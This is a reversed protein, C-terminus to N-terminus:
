SLQCTERYIKDKMPGKCGIKAQKIRTVAGPQCTYQIIGTPCSQACVETLKRGVDRLLPPPSFPTFSLTWLEPKPFDTENRHTRPCSDLRDFNRNRQRSSNLLLELAWIKTTIHSYIPNDMYLLKDSVILDINHGKIRKWRDSVTEIDNDL